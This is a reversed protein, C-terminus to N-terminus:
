ATWCLFKFKVLINHIKSKITVMVVQYKTFVKFRYFHSFYVDIKLQRQSLEDWEAFTTWLVDCESTAILSRGITPGYSLKGSTRKRGVTRLVYNRRGVRVRPRHLTKEIGAVFLSTRVVKMQALLLADAWRGHVDQRTPMFDISIIRMFHRGSSLYKM